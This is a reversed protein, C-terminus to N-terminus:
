TCFTSSLYYINYTIYPDGFFDLLICLFLNIVNDYHGKFKIFFRGLRPKLYRKPYSFLM